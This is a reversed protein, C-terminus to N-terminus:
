AGRGAEAEEARTLGAIGMLDEHLEFWVTHYSDAIPKAVFSHDGSAVADAARMLRTKYHGLRPAVAAIRDLLPLVRQHLAQLRELVQRDYEADTHDNPQDPGRTQWDTIIAKLEFNHETFDEYIQKVASGDTDRREAAVLETCRQRGSPTIRYGMPTSKVLQRSVYEELQERVHGPDAGLSAAVAEPSVRGKIAVLRLMTLEDIM